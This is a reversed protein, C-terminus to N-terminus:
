IIEFGSKVIAQKIEPHKKELEDVFENIKNKRKEQKFKLNKLKAYLLVEKDLFLILPKFSNEKKLNLINKKIIANVIKESEVDATDSNAFKKSKTSSLKIIGKQSYMKLLHELVVERLNKSKKYSILDGKKILNFRRITYLFKKEFWHVYCTKCLKRKNTFEYVPNSNCQNCM